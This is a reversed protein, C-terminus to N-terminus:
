PGFHTRSRASAARSYALIEPRYEFHITDFHSWKGGWVFGNREFAEIVAQPPSWRAELGIRHWSRRNFVRSWRWYVHKGHYSAPVLDIALGWAHHSRSGSGVIEKDIFSYAVDLDAIWRAVAPDSVAANRIEEEVRRLAPLCFTNVFVRHDLFGTSVGHRRIRPETRGFALELLDTSYVPTETLPPPETLPNLPYAYFIPDYRDRVELHDPSLLRGDQFRVQGEGAWFVVDDELYVVSDFLSGYGELVAKVRLDRRMGESGTASDPLLDSVPAPLPGPPPGPFALGVLLGVGGLLLALAAPLAMPLGGKEGGQNEMSLYGDEEMERKTRGPDRHLVRSHSSIGRRGPIDTTKKRLKKEPLSQVPSPGPLM